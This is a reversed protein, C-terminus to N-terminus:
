RANLKPARVRPPRVQISAVIGLCELTGVIGTHQVLLVAFGPLFLLANMKVGLALSSDACPGRISRLFGTLCLRVQVAYEGLAM